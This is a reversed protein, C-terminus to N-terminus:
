KLLGTAERAPNGCRHFYWSQKATFDQIFSFTHALAKQRARTIPRLLSVVEYRDDQLVRNLALASDKGGSWCFVIKERM